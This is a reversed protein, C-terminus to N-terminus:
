SNVGRLAVRMPIAAREASTTNASRVIGTIGVIGPIGTIGVCGRRPRPFRGRRRVPCSARRPRVRVCGPRLCLRPTRAAKGVTGNATGRGISMTIAGTIMSCSAWSWSASSPLTTPCRATVGKVWGRQYGAIVDCWTYEPLCGQVSVVLGAPLVAVLPFDRAPGARLNVRKSTTAQQPQAQAAVPLMALALALVALPMFNKM